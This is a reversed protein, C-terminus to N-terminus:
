ERVLARLRALSDAPFGPPATLAYRLKGDARWETLVLEGLSTAYIVRVSDGLAELRGPVLGEILRLSGGLRAVALPLGVTEPRARPVNGIAQELRMEPAMSRVTGQAKVAPLPSPPAPLPAPAPAVVAPAAAVVNSAADALREGGATDPRVRPPVTPAPRPESREARKAMTDATRQEFAESALPTVREAYPGSGRIAYGLGAAGVVTAAWAVYGPWKRRRAPPASITATAAAEPPDLWEILRDAEAHFSQEEALRARCEACSRLHEQIPPLLGSPIEGDLLAQITGEDLHSM